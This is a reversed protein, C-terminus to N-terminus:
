ATVMTNSKKRLRMLESALAIDPVRERLGMITYDPTHCLTVNALVNLLKGHRVDFSYSFFIGTLHNEEFKRFSNLIEQERLKREPTNVYVLVVEAPHEQLISNAHRIANLSVASFDIPILIKKIENM